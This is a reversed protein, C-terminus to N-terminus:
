EQTLVIQRGLEFLEVIYDSALYEKGTELDLLGNTSKMVIKGHDDIGGLSTRKVIKGLVGPHMDSGNIRKINELGNVVVKAM